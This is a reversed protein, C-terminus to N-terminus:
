LTIGEQKRLERLGALCLHVFLLAAFAPALLNLLPVHAVLAGVMGAAYLNGKERRIVAARESATAHEALADFRFTRQNLWASWLLPLVLLAGPILLLPLTLLWGVLFIGGAALTNGLSGWLAASAAGQRTVDPYDRAAVIVMMRPLAFVAVLLLATLYVLPALFAAFVALHALWPGLWALWSWDPLEAVIWAAVPQWAFWAVAVWILFAALPPWLAHWLMDPRVLDRATRTVLKLLMDVRLTM